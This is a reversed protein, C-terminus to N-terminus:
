MMQQITEWCTWLESIATDFTSRTNWMIAPLDHNIQEPFQVGVPIDAHDVCDVDYCNMWSALKNLHSARVRCECEFTRTHHDYTLSGIVISVCYIETVDGSKHLRLHSPYTTQNKNETAM